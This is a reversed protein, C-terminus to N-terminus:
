QPQESKQVIKRRRKRPREADTEANDIRGMDADVFAAFVTVVCVPAVTRSEALYDAVEAATLGSKRVLEVFHDTDGGRNEWNRSIHGAVCNLLDETLGHM